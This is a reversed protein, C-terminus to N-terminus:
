AHGAAVIPQARSKRYRGWNVAITREITDHAARIGKLADQPDDATQGIVLAVVDCLAGLVPGAPQGSILTTMQDYLLLRTPDGAGVRRDDSYAAMVGGEEGTRLLQM